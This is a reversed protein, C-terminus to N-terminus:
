NEIFKEFEPITIINVKPFSVRKLVNFGRDHTIIYDVNAAVACDLFKNDDEDSLLSWRFYIHAFHVNPLERLATLFNYAVSLNYKQTLVEEYELMIEDTIFLDYTGALLHQILWHYMSKRSLSSVLVNTDIVVKM